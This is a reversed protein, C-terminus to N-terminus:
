QWRRLGEADDAWPFAAYKDKLPETPTEPFHWLLHYSFERWVIESLFVEAADKMAGNQIWGQVAHWVQRPSIEGHHLYPSLSSSGPRDPRNRDDAYDILAEDMFAQLRAQAAEEGPTWRAAIETAWDVGDQAEPTLAWGGIAESAPWAVPATGTLTPVDLPADVEYDLKGLKKWFPTFVKYPGGSGTQVADPDHLIRGTFTKVTLGDADLAARIEADRARLAPLLRANWYVADAGTTAAVERLAELSPGSRLVLDSGHAQLRAKLDTLSHHLWWRHAGGPAWPDEEEPAWVFVPVVVAGDQVAQWLAPHDALRLDHRLWVLIIM